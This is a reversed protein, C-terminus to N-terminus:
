RRASELAHPAANASLSTFRLGIENAPEVPDVLEISGHPTTWFETIRPEPGVEMMVKDRVLRAAPGYLRTFDGILADFGDLAVDARIQTLRGGAFWYRLHDLQYKQDFTFGVPLSLKGWADVYACVVVGASREAATLTLGAADPDNSCTPKTHPSLKGPPPLANWEAQSIGLRAGEFVIEAAPSARVPGALCAAAVLLSAIFPRAVPRRLRDNLNSRNVSNAEPDTMIKCTEASRLGGISM